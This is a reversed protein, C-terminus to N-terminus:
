EFLCPFNIFNSGNARVCVFDPSITGCDCGSNPDAAICVNDGVTVDVVTFVFNESDTDAPLILCRCLDRDVCLGSLIAQCVGQQPQLEEGLDAFGTCLTPLVQTPTPTTPAPTPTPTNTGSITLAIGAVIAVLVLVAFCAFCLIAGLSTQRPERVFIQPEEEEM